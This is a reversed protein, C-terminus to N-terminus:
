TSTFHEFIWKAVYEKFRQLLRLYVVAGYYCSRFIWKAVTELVAAVTCYQMFERGRSRASVEIAVDRVAEAFGRRHADDRAGADDPADHPRDLVGQRCM